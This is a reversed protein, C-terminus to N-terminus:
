LSFSYSVSPVIGFITTKVAETQLPADENPRFTISSANMRNYVNYLSFTWNGGLKNFLTASLDLRHYDPMRNVNRDEYHALVLGAYEYRSQPYTIPRGSSYIFNASISWDTNLQYAGTLSLDHLRDYSTAYFNGNNIGPDGQGIGSVKKESKSLTYSIWGTLKGIRKKFFLEVGYARGRGRLIETELTNNFILNAGDIYDIQNRLDKYYFEISSEFQNDAFNRYYGIAYQDAYQPEIYPGSPTWIDLPSPTTTNSILHIYQYMRNYSFKFASEGNPSYRIAFRPEIGFFDSISQNKSYGTSDVITGAEYRGLQSNYVVPQNNQYQYITQAGVRAFASFRLGYQLDLHDSIKQDFNLYLAPEYAYKNDVKNTQIASESSFPEIVGPQFQYYSFKLGFESILNDTISLSFDSSFITNQIDARWTFDSANAFINLGYNYMTHIISSKVVLSKSFIHNWKLGFATNGWLNGFVDGIEFKDNGHYGYFSLDDKGSINLNINWNLDYFYATNNIDFLPLFLDGYSRRGAVLFSGMDKGIPGELLLKSSILGIGGQLNFKDTQGKRQRVDLVSSLRGGYKAPIGGKYLALDSTAETNFVSFFGFLHSPNLLPADDLLVLNQDFNGGRVNFGTAGENVTSVGPLLQITKILDSEGLVVPTQRIANVDISAASMQTSVVNKDPREATSVITESEMLAPNLKFVVKEDTDIFISQEITIYGIYSINITHNGEPILFTFFGDEDTAAGYPQDTLYLNAGALPLDSRSDYVVGSLSYMNANNQSYIITALFLIFLLNYIRISTM